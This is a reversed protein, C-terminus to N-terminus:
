LDALPGVHPPLMLEAPSQICGPLKSNCAPQTSRTYHQSAQLKVLITPSTLCRGCQLTGSHAEASTRSAYLCQWSLLPLWQPSVLPSRPVQEAGDGQPTQMKNQLLFWSAMSDLQTCLAKTHSLADGQKRRCGCATITRMSSAALWVSLCM